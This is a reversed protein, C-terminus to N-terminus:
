SCIEQVFLAFAGAVGVQGTGVIGVQQKAMMIVTGGRPLGSYGQPM